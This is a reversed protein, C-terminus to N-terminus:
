YNMSSFPGKALAGIPCQGTVYGSQKQGNDIFNNSYSGSGGGIGNYYITTTVYKPNSINNFSQCYDNYVPEPIYHGPASKKNKGSM